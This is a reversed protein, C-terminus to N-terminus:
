LVANLELFSPECSTQHRPPRCRAPGVELMNGAMCGVQVLTIEIVEEYHRLNSNFAVM